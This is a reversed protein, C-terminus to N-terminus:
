TEFSKPPTAISITQKMESVTAAFLVLTEIWVSVSKQYCHFFDNLDFSMMMKFDVKFEVTWLM